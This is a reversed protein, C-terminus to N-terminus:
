PRNRAPTKGRVLQWWGIPKQGKGTGKNALFGVIHATLTEYPVIELEHSPNNLQRPLARMDDLLSQINQHFAAPEFRARPLQMLIRIFLVSRAMAPDGLYRSRYKELAQLRELVEDDRGELLLLLTLAIQIAVNMGAKDQTFVPTENAFRCSRFAPLSKEPLEWGHLRFLIFLYAGLIHWTEQQPPRLNPYRKHMTVTQFIHLAQTYRGDHLTLYVYMEYAHFFNYSGEPAHDLSAHVAAEGEAYRGQLLLVQAKSYFFIALPNVVPYRRSRFYRIAEDYCALAADLSGTQALYGGQVIYYHVHFMCSPARDKYVALADLQLRTRELGVAPGTKSRLFPLRAWQFCEAAREEAEVYDRYEWYETSYAEFEAEKGGLSLVSEKLVRLAELVFGPIEYRKGRRYLRRAIAVPAYRYGRAHLVQMTAQDLAGEIYNKVTVDARAKEEDFCVVMERLHRRLLRARKKYTTLSLGAARAAAHDTPLQHEWVVRYLAILAPDSNTFFALLAEDRWVSAKIFHVLDNLEKIM